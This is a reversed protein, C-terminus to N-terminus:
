AKLCNLLNVHLGIPPLKLPMPSTPVKIHNLPIQLGVKKPPAIETEIPLPLPESLPIVTPSAKKTLVAQNIGNLAEKKSKRMLVLYRNKIHIDTRMPFYQAIRVWKQGLERVKALLYEDEEPTWPANCVAPSLYNYWRDKCQRPNRNRMNRSVLQWNNEGFTGVLKRLIIDEEITFKSKPHPKHTVEM